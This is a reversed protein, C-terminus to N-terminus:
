EKLVFDYYLNIDFSIIPLESFNVNLDFYFKVLHKDNQLIDNNNSMIDRFLGGFYVLDFYDTPDFEIRRFTNFSYGDKLYKLVLDYFRRRYSYRLPFTASCGNFDLKSCDFYLACTFTEIKKM